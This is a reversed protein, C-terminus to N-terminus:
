RNNKVDLEILRHLILILKQDIETSTVITKGIYIFAILLQHNPKDNYHDWIVYKNKRYAERIQRKIKIRNVATKFNRKPVSILIQAAPEVSRDIEISTIRFPHVVFSKGHKFLKDM